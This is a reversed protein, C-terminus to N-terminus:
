DESSGKHIYGKSSAMEIITGLTVAGNGTRYCEQLKEICNAENYKSADLRSLALFYKHGIDYNFTNAIAFGVRLWEEYTTTISLNRKSLYKIISAIIDRSRKENKGKVNAVRFSPQLTPHTTKVQKRVGYFGSITACDVLVSKYQEKLVLDKDWGVYCIRSYDSGSQDLEINYTRLFYDTIHKFAVKHKQDIDFTIDDNVYQLSLLGKYGFGSPSRWFSFVYEDALLCQKVRIMEESTLNDIDVILINNYHVINHKAHGGRFEGCFAIIPLTKKVESYADKGNESLVCRARQILTAYVGAKFDSLVQYISVGKAIHSKISSFYTVNCNNM